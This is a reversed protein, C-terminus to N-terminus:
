MLRVRNSGVSLRGWRYDSDHKRRLVRLLIVWAAEVNGVSPSRSRHSQRWFESGLRGDDTELLSRRDVTVVSMAEISPWAGDHEIM